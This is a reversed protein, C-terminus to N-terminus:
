SIAIHSPQHAFIPTIALFEAFVAGGRTVALLWSFILTM